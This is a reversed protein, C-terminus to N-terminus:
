ATRPVKSTLAATRRMMDCFYEAAPTLALGRRRVLCIPPAPLKEVIGIRHLADRTMPSHMWQIPLMALLDSHSATVLMTLTSHAQLAIRPPPLGMQAFLPNIEEEAKFTVSTSLWQADALERLSRANALPHGKRCLVVRENDFLKEVLLEPGAAERPPPGIYCDVLGNRLATDVSQFLGERIDLHVGPYRARFPALATPLMALHPVTSLCVSVKGDSAGKLQGIEERARRIENQVVAARQILKEGMPTATVGKARREFLPTDLERELEQISRTLAPQALGLHRAAARLSGHEAVALLDRLQNLKM